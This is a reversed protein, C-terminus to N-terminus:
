EDRKRKHGVPTGFDLVAVVSRLSLWKTLESDELQYMARFDTPHPTVPEYVESDVDYRWIAPRKRRCDYRPM